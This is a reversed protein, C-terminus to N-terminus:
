ASGSRCVHLVDKSRSNTGSVKIFSMRPLHNTLDIGLFVETM